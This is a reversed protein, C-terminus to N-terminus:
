EFFSKHWVEILSSAYNNIVKKMKSTAPTNAISFISIAVEYYTPLIDGLVFKIEVNETM